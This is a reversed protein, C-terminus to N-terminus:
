LPKGSQLVRSWEFRQASNWQAEMDRRWERSERRKLCNLASLAPLLQGTPDQDSRIFIAIPVHRLCIVLRYGREAGIRESARISGGM